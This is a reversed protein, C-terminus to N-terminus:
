PETEGVREYSWAGIAAAADQDLLRQARLVIRLGEGEVAVAGVYDATLERIFAPMPRVGSEPVDIVDHVADALLAVRLGGVDVLVYRAADSPAAAPQGLIRRLDLTPVAVDRVIIVGLVFPPADAAAEPPGYPLVEEVADVDLALELMGCSLALMRQRPEQRAETPAMTEMAEAPPAAEFLAEPDLITAVVDGFRVVDAAGFAALRPAEEADLEADPEDGPRVVRAADVGDVAFAYRVTGRRLVLVAAPAPADAAGGARATDAEEGSLLAGADVVPIWGDRYAMVGSLHRPMAPLPVPTPREVVEAVAATPVAYRERGVRFLVYRAVGVDAGSEPM